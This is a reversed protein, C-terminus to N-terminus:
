IQTITVSEEKKCVITLYVTNPSGPIRVCNFTIDHHTNTSATGVTFELTTASTPLNSINDAKVTIDGYVNLIINGSAYNTLFANTSDIQWELVDNYDFSYTFTSSVFLGDSAGGGTALNGIHTFVAILDGVLDVDSNQPSVIVHNYGKFRNFDLSYQQNGALSNVYNYQHRAVFRNGSDLLITDSDGTYTTNVPVGWTGDGKLFKDTNTASLPVLGNTNTNFVPIKYKVWNGNACLVYDTKPTISNSPAPVLGSVTGNFTTPSSWNVFTYLRGRLDARVPYIRSPEPANHNFYERFYTGYDEQLNITHFSDEGDYIRSSIQLSAGSWDELISEVNIDSIDVFAAGQSDLQVARHNGNDRYGLKIGGLINDGATNLALGGINDIISLGTSPYIIGAQHENAYPIAIQSYYEQLWASLSNKVNLTGDSTIWDYLSKENNHDIKVMSICTEPHVISDKSCGFKILNWGKLKWDIKM